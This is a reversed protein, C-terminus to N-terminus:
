RQKVLKISAPPLEDKTLRLKTTVYGEKAVTLVIGVHSRIRQLLYSGDPRTLVRVNGQVFRGRHEPEGPPVLPMYENAYDPLARLLAGDVPKDGEDVVKGAFERGAGIRVDIRPAAKATKADLHVTRVETELKDDIWFALEYHGPALHPIRWSGDPEIPVSPTFTMVIPAAQHPHVRLYHVKAPEVTTAGEEVIPRGDARTVKGFVSSTPGLVFDTAEVSARATENFQGEALDIAMGDATIGRIWYRQGPGLEGFTWRGDADPTTRWAISGYQTTDHLVDTECLLVVDRAPKGNQDVIRGRVSSGADLTLDLRTDEGKRFATPPILGLRQGRAFVIVAESASKATFPLTYRGDRDTKALAREQWARRVVAGSIPAGTAKAVIRGSVSGKAPREDEEDAANTADGVRFPIVELDLTTRLNVEPASAHRNPNSALPLPAGAAITLAFPRDVHVRAEISTAGEYAATVAYLPGREVELRFRGATDSKGTALTALGIPQMRWFDPAALSFADLRASVTAGALARGEADRVIGILSGLESAQAVRQSSTTQTDVRSHPEDTCGTAVLTCGIAVVTSAALFLGAYGPASTLASRRVRKRCGPVKFGQQTAQM